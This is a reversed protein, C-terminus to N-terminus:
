VSCWSKPGGCALLCGLWAISSSVSASGMKTFMHTAHQGLGVVCDDAVQICLMVPMAPGLEVERSCACYKLM